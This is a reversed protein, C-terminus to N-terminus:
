EYKRKRHSREECDLNEVSTCKEAKSSKNSKERSMRVKGGKHREEWKKTKQERGQQKMQEDHVKM